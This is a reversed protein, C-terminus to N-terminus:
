ALMKLQKLKEHFEELTLGNQILYKAVEEGVYRYHWAEYQIKTIKEKGQPYRLIFGFNAANEKLWIAGKSTAVEEPLLQGGYQRYYAQDVVDIALGLHHESHGPKSLLRYTQQEAEAKTMGKAINQYIEKQVLQEQYSITRYASIIQLSVNAKEAAELLKQTANIIRADLQLNGQIIELDIEQDSVANDSNVLQLNWDTSHVNPFNKPHDSDEAKNQNSSSQSVVAPKQKIDKKDFSFFIGYVIMVALFIIAICTFIKRM